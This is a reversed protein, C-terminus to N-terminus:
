TMDRSSFPIALVVAAILTTTIFCKIAFLNAFRCIGFAAIRIDSIGGIMACSISPVM